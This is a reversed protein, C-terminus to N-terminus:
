MVQYFDCNTEYAKNMQTKIFVAEIKEGTEKAELVVKNSWHFINRTIHVVEYENGDDDKFLGWGWGCAIRKKKRANAKHQWEDFLMPFTAEEICRKHYELYKQYAKSFGM